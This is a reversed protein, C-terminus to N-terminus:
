KRRAAIQRKVHEDSLIRGADADDRGRQSVRTIIGRFRRIEHM